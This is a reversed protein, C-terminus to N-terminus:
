SEDLIERVRQGLESPVFPKSLLRVDPRLRGQDIISDRAYGSMFLVRLDPHRAGALDAVQQGNLGGPLLIDTVLLDVSGHKGLV